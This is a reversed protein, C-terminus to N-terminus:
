PPDKRSPLRRAVYVIGSSVLVTILILTYALRKGRWLGSFWSRLQYALVNATGGYLELERLYQKSTDPSPYVSAEGSAYAQMRNSCDVSAKHYILTSCAIGTVMIAIASFYLWKRLGENEFRLM